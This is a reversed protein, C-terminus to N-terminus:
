SLEPALSVLPLQGQDIVNIDIPNINIIGGIIISFIRVQIINM